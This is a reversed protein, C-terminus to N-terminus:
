EYYKITLVREDDIEPFDSIEIIKKRKIEKFLKALEKKIKKKNSTYEIKM